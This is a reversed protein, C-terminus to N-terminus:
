KPTLVVTATDDYGNTWTYTIVGTEQDVSGSITVDTGFPEGFSASINGCADTITATMDFDSTIGYIEYWTFYMRASWDSITYEGAGTETLTVDYDVTTEDPCCSDTSQGVSHASYEGALDSPCIINQRITFLGSFPASNIINGGTNDASFKAGNAKTITASFIFYNGGEIDNETLGLADLTEAFGFTIKKEPLGNSNTSFDSATFSKFPMPGVENGGAVYKVTWDYNTINKGQNEDYLEVTFDIASNAIDFFDFAGNVGDTKRAYAGKEMDDFEPFPNDVTRACSAMFIVLLGYVLFKINKM